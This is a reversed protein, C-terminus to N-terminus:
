PDALLCHLAREPFGAALARLHPRTPHISSGVAIKLLSCRILRRSTLYGPIRRTTGARCRRAAVLQSVLCYALQRGIAGAAEAACEGCLDAVPGNPPKWGSRRRCALCARHSLAPGRSRGRPGPSARDTAAGWLRFSPRPAAGYRSASRPRGANPSPSCAILFIGTYAVCASIHTSDSRDGSRASGYGARGARSGRRAARCEM